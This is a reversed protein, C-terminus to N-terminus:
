AVVVFTAVAVSAARGEETVPQHVRGRGSLFSGIGIAAM